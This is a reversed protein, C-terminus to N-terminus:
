RWHHWLLVGAGVLAGLALLMVLGLLGFVLFASAKSAAESQQKRRAKARLHDELLTINRRNAHFGLDFLDGVVPISGVGIDTVANGLMQFLLERPAGRRWAVYMLTASTVGGLADGAGPLLTGLLADLGLRVRTGPIQLGDDSIGVLVHLWPPLMVDASRPPRWLAALFARTRMWLMHREFGPPLKFRRSRLADFFQTM